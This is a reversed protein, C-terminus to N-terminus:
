LLPIIHNYVIQVAGYLALLIIAASAVLMICGIRLAKKREKNEIHMVYRNKLSNKTFIPVAYGDRVASGLILKILRETFILEGRGERAAKIPLTQFRM